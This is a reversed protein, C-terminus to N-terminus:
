YNKENDFKSHYKGFHGETVQPQNGGRQVGGRGRGGRFGSKLSQYNSSRDDHSESYHSQSYSSYNGGGRNNFGGGGRGGRFGGGGGRGGRFGAGLYRNGGGYSGSRGRFGSGGGYSRGRYRGRSPQDSFNRKRRGLNAINLKVMEFVKEEIPKQYGVEKAFESNILIKYFSIELIPVNRVITVHDLGREKPEYEQEFKLTFIRNVQHLGPVVKKLIESINVLSAIASGSAKFKIYPLNRKEFLFVAYRLFNLPDQRSTIHIENEQLPEKKKPVRYFKSNIM